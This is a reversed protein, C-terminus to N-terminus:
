VIALIVVCLLSTLPKSAVNAQAELKEMSKANAAPRDTAFAARRLRPRPFDPCCLATRKKIPLLGRPSILASSFLRGHASRARTHYPHSPPTLAWWADPSLRATRMPRQFNMYVPMQPRGTRALPYFSVATRCRAACIFSLCPSRRADGAVKVVSGPKYGPQM